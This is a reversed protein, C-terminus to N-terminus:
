MQLKTNPLIVSLQLSEMKERAVIVDKTNNNTIALILACIATISFLVITGKLTKNM